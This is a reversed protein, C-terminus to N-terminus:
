NMSFPSPSAAHFNTNGNATNNHALLGQEEGTKEPYMCYPICFAFFASAPIDEAALAILPLSWGGGIIATTASATMAAPGWNIATGLFNTVGGIYTTSTLSTVSCPAMIMQLPSCEHKCAAALCMLTTWALFPSNAGLVITTLINPNWSLVWNTVAISVVGSGYNVIMPLAANRLPWSPYNISRNRNGESFCTRLAELIKCSSLSTLKEDTSLYAARM